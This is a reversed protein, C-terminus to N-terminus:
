SEPSELHELMEVALRANEIGGIREVFDGVAAAVSGPLQEPAAEVLAKIEAAPLDDIRRGM